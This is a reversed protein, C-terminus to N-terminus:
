FPSKQKNGNHSDGRQLIDSDSNFLKNIIFPLEPRTLYFITLLNLTLGEPM